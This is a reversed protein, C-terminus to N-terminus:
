RLPRKIGTILRFWFLSLTQDHTSIVSRSGV